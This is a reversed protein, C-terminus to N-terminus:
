VANSLDSLLSIGSFYNSQFDASWQSDQNIKFNRTGCDAQFNPPCRTFVESLNVSVALATPNYM